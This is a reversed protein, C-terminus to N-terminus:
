YHRWWSRGPIPRTEPLGLDVGGNPLKLPCILTFKCIKLSAHPPLCLLKQSSSKNPSGGTKFSWDWTFRAGDELTWYPLLLTPCYCIAAHPWISSVLTEFSFRTSVHIRQELTMLTHVYWSASYFFLWSKWSCCNHCVSATIFNSACPLCYTARQLAM